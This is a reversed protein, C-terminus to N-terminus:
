FAKTEWGLRKEKEKGGDEFKPITRKYIDGIVPTKAPITAAIPHPIPSKKAAFAEM